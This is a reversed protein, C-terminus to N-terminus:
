KICLVKKSVEVCEKRGKDNVCEGDANYRCSTFNCKKYNPEIPEQKYLREYFKQRNAEYDADYKRMEEAAKQATEQISIKMKSDEVIGDIIARELLEKVSIDTKGPMKSYLEIFQQKTLSKWNLNDRKCKFTEAGFGCVYKENGNADIYPGVCLDCDKIDKCPKLEGSYGCCLMTNQYEM